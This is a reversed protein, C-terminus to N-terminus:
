VLFFEKKRCECVIHSRKQKTSFSFNKAKLNSVELQMEFVKERRSFVSLRRAM